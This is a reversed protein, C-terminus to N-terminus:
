ISDYLSVLLNVLEYLKDSTSFRIGNFTTLEYVTKEANKPEITCLGCNLIISILRQKKIYRLNAELM